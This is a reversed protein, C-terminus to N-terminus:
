KLGEEDLSKCIPLRRHLVLENGNEDKYYEPAPYTGFLRCMYSYGSKDISPPIPYLPCRSPEDCYDGEPTKVRLYAM